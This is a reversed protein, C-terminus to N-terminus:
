IAQGNLTVTRRYDNWVLQRRITVNTVKSNERQQQAYKLADNEKSFVNQEPLLGYSDRTTYEVIYVIPLGLRGLEIDRRSDNDAWVTANIKKQKETNRKEYQEIVKEIAAVQEANLVIRESYEDRVENFQKDYYMSM